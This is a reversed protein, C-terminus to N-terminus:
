NLPAINEAFTAVDFNRWKRCSTKKVALIEHKQLLVFHVVGHDASTVFNVLLESVEVESTIVQDLIGGSNHTRVTVQLQLVFEDLFSIWNRPADNSLLM